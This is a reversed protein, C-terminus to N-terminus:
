FIRTIGFLCTYTDIGKNPDKIGANSTHRFRYELTFASKEEFFYHLGAGLSSIFNFQTSQERTHQTMYVMGTGVKLYPQFKWTEPALGFKFLFSTGAEMNNEPQTVLGLFPEIQFRVLSSPNFGIKKTIAKFDFDLAVAASIFRYDERQDLEGRTYGLFFELGSLNRPKGEARSIHPNIFVVAIAAIVIVIKKMM